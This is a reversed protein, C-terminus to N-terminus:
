NVPKEVTLVQWSEREHQQTPMLGV